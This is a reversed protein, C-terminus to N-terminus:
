LCCNVCHDQVPPHCPECVRVMTSSEAWRQNDRSCDNCFLGSKYLPVFSGRNCIQKKSARGFWRCCPRKWVIFIAVFIELCCKGFAKLSARQVFTCASRKLLRSLHGPEHLLNLYTSMTTEWLVTKGAWKSRLLSLRGPYSWVTTYVYKDFTWPLSKQTVTIMHVRMTTPALMTLSILSELYTM